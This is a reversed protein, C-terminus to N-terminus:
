KLLLMKNVSVYNKTEIKYYYIGSSLDTANFPVSFEGKNQHKNVLSLIKQGASNYVILSVHGAQPLSYNITTNPNFPNPYNQGLKFKNPVVTEDEGIGSIIILNVTEINTYTVDAFGPTTITSGDDTAANESKFNLIDTGDFGDIHRAISPLPSVTIEDNFGSGTIGEFIGDLIIKTGATDITQVNNQLGLDLTIGLDYGTFSLTDVGSSDIITISEESIKSNLLPTSLQLSGSGRTFSFLDNGFGGNVLATLSSIWLAIYIKDAGAGADLYHNITSLLNMRLIDDGEGANVDTSIISPFNNDSVARLDIDEDGSSGEVGIETVVDANIETSEGEVTVHGNQNVNLNLKKDGFDYAKINLQTEKISIAWAAITHINYTEHMLAASSRNGPSSNNIFEGPNEVNASIRKGLGSFYFSSAFALYEDQSDMGNVKHGPAFFNFYNELLNDQSKYFVMITDSWAGSIFTNGNNDLAISSFKDNNGPMNTRLSYVPQGTNDMRILIGDAKYREPSSEGNVIPFDESSTEGAIYADGGSGLVMDKGYERYTGGFYTSYIMGDGDSNLRTISLDGYGNYVNQYANQLPFDSSETNGTITAEGSSNVAFCMLGDEDSGGLYTSYVISGTANFKVVFIDRDGNLEQQLGGVIPIDTSETSGGLFINGMDDFAVRSMWEINSGGFYTCYTLLGSPNLITLFADTFGSLTDQAANLTPLNDSKTDGALYLSGLSDIAVDEFSDREYGGFVASYIVAGSKGDLKAMLADDRWEGIHNSGPISDTVPFEETYGVFVMNSDSDFVVDKFMSGEYDEGNFDVLFVLEPDIVMPFDHNYKGLEFGVTADALLTYEAEIENRIGEIEQYVYPTKEVLDGLETKLVLAGDERIEKSKIGQYNLKIQNYDAGPSVYFESELKGDDGIYGMDIGPYLQKYFVSSYTAVNTQWKAPNSGKYFHAVGSLKERGEIVPNQNAGEFQLIVENKAEESENRRLVIKDEEFFVTHGAGQVHFKADVGAQGRNEIFRLTQNSFLNAKEKVATKRTLNPNNNTGTNQLFLLGSIILLIAVISSYITFTKIRKYNTFSHM